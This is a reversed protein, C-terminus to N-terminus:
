AQHYSEHQGEGDNEYPKELSSPFPGEQGEELRISQGRKLKEFADSINLAEGISLGVFQVMIKPDAATRLLANGDIKAEYFKHAIVSLEEKDFPSVDELDKCTSMWIKVEEATLSTVAKTSLDIQEYDVPEKPTDGNDKGKSFALHIDRLFKGLFVAACLSGVLPWLWTYRDQEGTASDTQFVMVPIYLPTTLLGLLRLYQFITKQHNAIYDIKGTNKTINIFTMIAVATVYIGTVAYTLYITESVITQHGTYPKQSGVVNQILLVSTIMSSASCNEPTTVMWQLQTTFATFLFPLLIMWGFSAQNRYVVRFSGAQFARESIDEHAVSHGTDQLEMQPYGENFWPAIHVVKMYPILTLKGQDPLSPIPEKFGTFPGNICFTSLEPAQNSFIGAPYSFVLIDLLNVQFPFFKRNRPQFKLPLAKGEVFLLNDNGDSIPNLKIKFDSIGDVYIGGSLARYESMPLPQMSDYADDSCRGDTLLVQKEDVNDKVYLYEDPLLRVHGEDEEPDPSAVTTQNRSTWMANIASRVDHHPGGVQVKHIYIRLDVVFEGKLYDIQGLDNIVVGLSYMGVTVDPGEITVMLTTATQVEDYQEVLAESLVLALDDLHMKLRTMYRLYGDKLAQRESPNLTAPNQGFEPLHSFTAVPICYTAQALCRDVPRVVYNTKNLDDTSTEEEELTASEGFTIDFIQIGGASSAESQSEEQGTVVEVQLAVLVVVIIVLLSPLSVRNCCM